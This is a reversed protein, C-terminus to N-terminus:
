PVLSYYYAVTRVREVIDPDRAGGLELSLRLSNQYDLSTGLVHWRCFNASGTAVTPNDVVGWAQAFANAHPADNFYFADDAYQDTSTGFLAPTGDVRALVNAEVVNLPDSQVAGRASAHGRLYGCLGVLRGLGLTELAVHESANTPGVTENRQVQLHGFSGLPLDSTGLVRLEFATALAGANSFTLLAQQVFPMPLKLALVRDGLDLFSTLAFSSSDPAVDGSAFLEALPLQISPLQANDWYVSVTV